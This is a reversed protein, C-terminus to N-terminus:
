AVEDFSLAAKFDKETVGGESHTSLTLTVKNYNVTIDPHHNLGEAREAVDNVFAIAAKFSDFEYHRAIANGEKAWGPLGKLREEIAANDLVAM